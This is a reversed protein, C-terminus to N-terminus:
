VEPGPLAPSWFASEETELIGQAPVRVGAWLDQVCNVKWLIQYWCGPFPLNPAPCWYLHPKGPPATTFFSGALALAGLSKPQIVLNALDGPPPFPLGSSIRARFFGMSLTAQRAVTLPIASDSVM